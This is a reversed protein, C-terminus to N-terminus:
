EGDGEHRNRWYRENPPRSMSFNDPLIKLAHSGIAYVYAKEYIGNPSMGTDVHSNIIDAAVVTALIEEQAKGTVGLLCCAQAAGICRDANKKMAEALLRNRMGAESEPDCDDSLAKVADIINGIIDFRVSECVTADSLVEEDWEKECDYEEM